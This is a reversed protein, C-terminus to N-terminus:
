LIVRLIVVYRIIEAAISDIAAHVSDAGSSSVSVTKVATESPVEVLVARPSFVSPLYGTRQDSPSQMITLPTTDLGSVDSAAPELEAVNWIPCVNVGGYVATYGAYASCDSWIAIFDSCDGAAPAKSGAAAIIAACLSVM